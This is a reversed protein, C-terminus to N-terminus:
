KRNEEYWVELNLIDIVEDVYYQGVHPRKLPVTIIGPNGERTYSYHSSGGRPQSKEWGFNRLITDLEAFTVNKRNDLIKKVRKLLRAM